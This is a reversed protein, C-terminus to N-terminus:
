KKANKLNDIFKWEYGAHSKLKNNLCKSISTREYGERIISKMDPFVKEIKGDKIQAIGRYERRVMKKGKLINKIEQIKKEVRSESINYKKALNRLSMDHVFRDIYFDRYKSNIIPKLLNEKLEIFDTNFDDIIDDVSDSLNDYRVNKYSDKILWKTHMTIYGYLFSSENDVNPNEKVLRENLKSLIDETNVNKGICLNKVSNKIKRHNKENVWNNFDM